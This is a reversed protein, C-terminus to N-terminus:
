RDLTVGGAPATFSCCLVPVVIVIGRQLLRDGERVPWCGGLVGLETRCRGAYDALSAGYRVASIERQRDPPGDPLRGFRPSRLGINSPARGAALEVAFARAAQEQLPDADPKCEPAGGLATGTGPLQASRIIMM